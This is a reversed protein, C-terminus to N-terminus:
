AAPDARLSTILENAQQLTDGTSRPGFPVHVELFRGGERFLYMRSPAAAACEWRAPPNQVDISFQPLLPIFEGRQRLQRIGRVV